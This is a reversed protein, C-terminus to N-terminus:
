FWARVGIVLSFASTEDGMKRIIDATGGLRQNWNIGMYPAFKRVIEYRLRLGTDLSTLGSSLKNSPIDQLSLHAGVRPQLILKQTLLIDYEAEFNATLDGEDSINLSANVEFWQPALGQIGITGYAQSPGKEIGQGIGVQFDFYPSIARGYLLEISGGEFQNDGFSYEGETKMWLRNIDGGLWGQLDFQGIGEDISQYELRDALVLYHWKNGTEQKLVESAAQMEAPDYYAEAAKQAVASGSFIGAIFLSLFLYRM